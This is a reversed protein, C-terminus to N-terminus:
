FLLGETQKLGFAINMNQVAQSAAGKFLNDICAMAVCTNTRSNYHVGIDCFNTGTVNQIEPYEGEKMIRIFPADKYFARYKKLIDATTIRKNLKLYSSTLMGYKFPAVCPAFLVKIKRHSLVALEQEIEPTHPHIGIKYPKINEQVEIAMNRENPRRGAGSVGCIAEVVVTASKDELKNALIPALSLIACTSYCGPNAIFDADKIKNFYLEPLGYVAKKLLARDGHTFGYWEKYLSADKLRFDASLDIFKIASGTKQALASLFSTGKLQEGHPKALFVVDCDRIIKDPEYKTTKLRLINGLARHIEGAEQGTKTQSTLLALSVYKHRSLIKLLVGASLSSAGVVGVRISKKLISM